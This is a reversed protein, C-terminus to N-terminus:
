NLACNIENRKTFKYHLLTYNNDPNKTYVHCYYNTEMRFDIRCRLLIKFVMGNQSSIIRYFMNKKPLDIVLIQTLLNFLTATKIIFQLFIMVPVLMQNLDWEFYM